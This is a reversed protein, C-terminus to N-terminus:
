REARRRGRAHRAEIEAEDGAVAAEINGAHQQSGGAAREVDDVEQAGVLDIHRRDAVLGEDDVLATVAVGAGVAGVDHQRARGVRFLAAM